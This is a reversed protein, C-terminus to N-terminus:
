LLKAARSTDIYSAYVALTGLDRLYNTSIINSGSNDLLYTIVSCSTGVEKKLRM